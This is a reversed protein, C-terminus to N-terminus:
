SRSSSSAATTSTGAAPSAARTICFLLFFLVVMFGVFVLGLLFITAGMRAILGRDAAYRTRAM